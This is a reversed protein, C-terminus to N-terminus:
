MIKLFETKNMKTIQGNRYVKHPWKVDDVDLLVESYCRCNWINGAHYRGVNQEGALEEPSPPDNWNVIVGEMLRHSKRVRNGDLATRWVYWHMDLNQARSKTIASQTKAVETRAILRASARSHKDTDQRIIKEISRARKGKIAEEAINKVVKEAVDNPLTRILSANEIIQDNIMAEHNKKIDDILLGYLFKSQTSKRAAKRWTQENISSLPTVMRKVASTIFKEYQYSNQFNNMRQRYLEQDEGVSEAIKRFMDCLTYLSKVYENEIRRTQNWISYKM